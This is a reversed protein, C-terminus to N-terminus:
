DSSVSPLTATHTITWLSTGDGSRHGEQRRADPSRRTPCSGATSACRSRRTATPSSPSRDDHSIRHGPVRADAAGRLRDQEARLGLIPQRAAHGRSHDLRRASSTRAPRVSSSSSAPGAASCDSTASSTRPRSRSGTWSPTSSTGPSHGLPRRKTTLTPWSRPQVAARDPDSGRDAPLSRHGSLRWRTSATSILGTGGIFPGEHRDGRLRTLRTPRRDSSGAASLQGVLIADRSGNGAETAAPRRSKRGDPATPAGAGAPRRGHRAPAAAIALGM